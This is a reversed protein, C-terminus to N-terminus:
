KPGPGVVIFGGILVNDGTEVLARTSINRLAPLTPNPVAPNVKAISGNTGATLTTNSSVSAFTGSVSAYGLPNFTDAASPTSGDITHMILKGGLTAHGSVQLQDYEGASAGGSELILGGAAKQAFNGVVNIRGASHGPAVFGSNNTLSGIIVGSGSLTGGNLALSSVIQLHSLDTEGGTQVFGPNAATEVVDVTPRGAAPASGGDNTILSAGDNGILSAGDNSIVSGGDNTILSAGDNGILSAGDNGILSGGDNTILSGGDNTILRGANQFTSATVGRVAPLPPPPASPASTPAPKVNPRHFIFDGLNHFFAGVGDFFGDPAPTNLMANTTSPVPVIGGRGTVRITGMNTVNGSMPVNEDGTLVMSANPNIVLNLNKVAGSAFSFIGGVNLAGGAGNLTGGILSIASATVNNNINATKGVIIALDQAGPIGSHGLEDVWNGATSWNGSTNMTFIKGGPPKVRIYVPPALGRIGLNDVAIAKIVHDGPVSTTYDTTISTVGGEKSDILAGDYFLSIKKIQRTFAVTPDLRANLRITGFNYVLPHAASSGDNGSVPTTLASIEVTAPTGVVVDKVGIINSYGELFGVATAKARFYVQTGPPYKITDLFFHVRDAYTYMRGTRGDNLGAWSAADEPTLTSQIYLTQTAQDVPVTARFKMEAGPGNTALYLAPGALHNRTASLSFPGLVNSKSEPYGPATSLARFYIGNALPYNTSSLVFQGSTKD